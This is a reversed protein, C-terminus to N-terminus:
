NVWVGYHKLRIKITSGTTLAGGTNYALFQWGVGKSFTWRPTISGVGGNAPLLAGAGGNHPIFAIQGMCKSWRMVKENVDRDNRNLPGTAEISEEFDALSLDGNAMYLEIPGDGAQHTANQLTAMYETKLIRFDDTMLTSIDGGSIVIGTDAALTNLAKTITERVIVGLGDKGFGESM